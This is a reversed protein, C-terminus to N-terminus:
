RGPYGGNDRKKNERLTNGRAGPNFADKLNQWSEKWVEKVPKNIGQQAKKANEPDVGHKEKDWNSSMLKIINM